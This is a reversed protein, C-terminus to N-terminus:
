KKNFSTLLEQITSFDNKLAISKVVQTALSLKAIFDDNSSIVIHHPHNKWVSKIRKNLDIAESFSETRIPNETDYTDSTATDMHIVWDYRTYEKEYTSNISSMFDIPSNKPWYAAGDVSGRDCIVLNSKAEAILLNELEKQTFYIARQAHMQGEVTKKRPFGGKYLISAAEPVVTAKPGMEKHLAELFTTKGGSPGGTLVIVIKNNQM